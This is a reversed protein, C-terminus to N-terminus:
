ISGCTLHLIIDGIGESYLTDSATQIPVRPIKRFSIFASRSVTYHNLAGSDLMSCSPSASHQCQFHMMCSHKVHPTMLPVCPTSNFMFLAHDSTNMNINRHSSRRHHASSTESDTSSSCPPSLSSDHQCQCKEGHHM